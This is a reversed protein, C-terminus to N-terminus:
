DGRLQKEKNRIDNYEFDRPSGNKECLRDLESLLYFSEEYRGSDYLERIEGNGFLRFVFGIEGEEEIRRQVSNRFSELDGSQMRYSEMLSEMSVGITAAIRRVTEASCNRIDARGAAIDSLTTYPVGSM